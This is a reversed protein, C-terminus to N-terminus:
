FFVSESLNGLVIGQVPFVCAKGCVDVCCKKQHPCEEDNECENKFNVDSCLQSVGPCVGPKVTCTMTVAPCTGQCCKKDGPCTEDNRCQNREHSLLCSPHIIPCIGLKRCVPLGWISSSPSLIPIALHLCTSLPKRHSN